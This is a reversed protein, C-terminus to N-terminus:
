WGGGRAGKIDLLCAELMEALIGPNAKRWNPFSVIGSGLIEAM